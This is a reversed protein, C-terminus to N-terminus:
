STLKAKNCILDVGITAPSGLGAVNKNLLGILARNGWTFLSGIFKGASLSCWSARFIHWSLVNLAIVSM